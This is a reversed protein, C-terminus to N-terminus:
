LYKEEAKSITLGAIGNRINERLAERAVETQRDILEVAPQNVELNFGLKEKERQLSSLENVRSLLVQDSLGIVSPSIITGTANKDNLYEALYNYYQLQLEFAAKENETKELRGQIIAGESSLNIFSNALRFNELKKAAVELSDSIIDLQANIFSITQEAIQKKFDLGYSVYVEMLKNLYDAEQEPVYGSVSLTVLSAEKEIPAVSLKGRYESALSAPDTFWFYYKNSAGEDYVAHGSNRPEITFDFGLESFREGFSMEKTFGKDGDLIINYKEESLIEIGVMTGQPELELSDYVVIFPATKYLRLKAIERKGVSIYVVHFEPLEKMVKYNLMFSKLIGIENTLNQQNKFIDGGPIVSGAGSNMSGIKDDKILLSSSVTYIRESYKNKAYAFTIAIFLAVAFWYWNSIFLSIYRKIDLNDDDHPNYNRSNLNPEM